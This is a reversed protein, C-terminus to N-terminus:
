PEQRPLRCLLFPVLAGAALRLFQSRSLAAQSLRQFRLNSPLM